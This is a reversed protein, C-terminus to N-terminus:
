VFQNTLWTLFVLLFLSASVVQARKRELSFNEVLAVVALLSTFAFGIVSIFSVYESLIQFLYFPISALVVLTFLRRFNETRDEFFQFYYYLFTSMLLAAITSVVPMLFLGAAVRLFNFKILGALVGSAVSIVIHLVFLTSWGWNPLSSIKKVPNKVYDVLYDVLEKIEIESKPQPTVDRM